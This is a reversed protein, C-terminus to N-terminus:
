YLRHFKQLLKEMARVHDRLEKTVALRDKLNEDYATFMEGQGSILWNLNVSTANRAGALFVADPTRLGNEYKSLTSEDIHLKRALKKQSDKFLLRLKRLRKGFDVKNM